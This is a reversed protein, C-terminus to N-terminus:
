QEARDARGVVHEDVVCAPVHAQRAEGGLLEALRAKVAEHDGVQVRVGDRRHRDEVAERHSSGPVMVVVVDAATASVGAAGYPRGSSPCTASTAPALLPIPAAVASANAAAPAATTRAARSAAARSDTAFRISARPPWAAATRASTDSAPETRSRTSAATSLYPRSSAANLLALAPGSGAGSASMSGASNSRPIAVFMRPVNRPIFYSIAAMSRVPPPAITLM